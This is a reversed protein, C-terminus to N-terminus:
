RAMTRDIGQHGSEEHSRRLFDPQKSKPIILLLSDESLTPSRVKRYLVDDHQILQSWIQKYRKLPYYGWERTAPPTQHREFLDIVKILLPDSRQAQSFEHRDLPSRLAVLGIPMRSLADANQNTAGPKYVINFQYARLELSWRELRQSRAHSTRASELWELPKHDTELTFPAGVVYHRLKRVAWVIALCEKEITAYKKEASSLTRSAYEVVTGRSTSLVAGLGVYSAYTTLIFKDTQRPYDLVPPSILAQKLSEFAKQHTDQWTFSVKNETLSTHPAALDAFKPIFRRYFNVLGLFSRVEKTSTPIPWKTIAQSKGAAPTVGSGTYEFGLHTVKNRGFFCKSGRLTFGAQHLRGLVRRLDKIHSEMSDSYVICDDVYNDVCDKCDKLVRDLGRQCTQTAGTLGYPMVTFEWLGYGPGPCFATKEISPTSMPFQWYASRLDIKSFVQKHALKQQPGEARPVPYSDKKTSKNLQVYDVCIRIEGNSKPVYVAPASWPSKSPQIIGAKMMEQLQDHVQKKYHFPIPRPPVRVPPADATDIVHETIKTSGLQTTFLMQHEKLVQSLAPHCDKPMDLENQSSGKFPMAQPCDDDLILNCTPPSTGLSLKGEKTPSKRSSFTGKDFDIILGHKTLFDCGLIAPASLREVVVFKQTTTLNPIQVRMTTVGSPSLGRGDANVLKEPGMAGLNGPRVYDRCVVSCSAGSDLLIDVAQNNLQGQTYAAKATDM